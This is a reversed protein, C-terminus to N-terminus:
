CLATVGSYMSESEPYDECPIITRCGASINQLVASIKEALSNM